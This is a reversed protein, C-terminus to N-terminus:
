SITLSKDGKLEKWKSRLRDKLAQEETANAHNPTEIDGTVKFKSRATDILIPLVWGDRGSRNKAIYLRGVGNAKEFARRSITVVIDAEMAKGYAESMNTLDIIESNAGERNSQSATLVPIHLEKAYGRLEQYILKLEHRLSDFQRTSRMIDAYDIILVDPKFGHLALKEVHAKLTYISASGSPFEKIILKGWDKHEAYIKRIDEHQDIVDNCDIDCLNSDYRLGTLTDSLELTYHLVNKGHKVANAGAQVLFHSKGVGTSAVIVFLEGEGVGGNFVNVADLEPIGIPIANRSVRSFRKDMEEFFNHGLSSVTGVSVAKKITEVIAEYKETAILDVAQELAGKLAQKKCFDLTRDKIYPLDNLNPNAKIRTLYEIIQDRLVADPGVRLDDRIITVLLQMTPFVKYKRAYAFYKSALYRLYKLDFYNENFVDTLQESWNHDMLLAQVVGEQFSRGYEAFSAEQTAGGFAGDNDQQTM